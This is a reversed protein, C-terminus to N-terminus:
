QFVASFSSVLSFYMTLPFFFTVIFTGLNFFVADKWKLDYLYMTGRILVATFFGYHVTYLTFIGFGGSLGLQSLLVSWAAATLFVVISLKVFVFTIKSHGKRDRQQAFGDIVFALLYPLLSFFLFHGIAGSILFGFSRNTYPPSILVFAAGMSISSILTILSALIKLSRPEWTSLLSEARFPEFLICDILDISRVFFIKLM